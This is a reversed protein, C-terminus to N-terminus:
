KKAEKIGEIIAKAVAPCVMNGIIQWADISLVVQAGSQMAGESFGGGGCFLDVVAIMGDGANHGM